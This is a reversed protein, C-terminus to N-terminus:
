RLRALPLMSCTKLPFQGKSAKEPVQVRVGRLQLLKSFARRHSGTTQQLTAPSAPPSPPNQKRLFISPQTDMNAGCLDRFDIAHPLNVNLSLTTSWQTSVCVNSGDHLESRGQSHHTASRRQQTRQGQGCPRRREEGVSFILDSFPPQVRLHHHPRPLKELPEDLADFKSPLTVLNAGCLARFNM